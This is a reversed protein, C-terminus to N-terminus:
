EDEAQAQEVFLAFLKDAMAPEVQSVAGEGEENEQYQMFVVEQEEKEAQMAPVLALYTNNEYELADVMLFEEEEGNEGTLTITLDEMNSNM